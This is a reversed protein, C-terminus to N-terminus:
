SSPSRVPYPFGNAPPITQDLSERLSADSLAYGWNILSEQTQRNLRGLRTPINPLRESWDDPCALAGPVRGLASPDGIEWYAGSRTGSAFEALAARARMGRMENELIARTRQLALVWNRAPRPQPRGPRIADSILVTGCQEWAASIGLSDISSGDELTVNTTYPPKQLDAGSGPVFDAHKLRLRVPSLFPGYAASAAVVTALEIAPANVSGVRRDGCARKSFRWDSLSQVNTAKIVVTPVDPLDQLTRDGFLRKALAMAVHEGASRRPDFMGRAVAPWDITTDALRRIPDVLCRRLAAPHDGDFDLEAWNDGLM